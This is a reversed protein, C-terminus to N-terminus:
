SEMGADTIFSNILSWSPENGKRTYREIENYKKGRILGYAIHLHRYTYILKSLEGDLGYGERQAEKHERRTQRIEASLEKLRTKMEQITKM